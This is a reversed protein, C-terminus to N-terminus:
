PVALSRIVGSNSNGTLRLPAGRVVIMRQRGMGSCPRADRLAGRTPGLAEQGLGRNVWATVLDLSKDIVGKVVSPKEFGQEM